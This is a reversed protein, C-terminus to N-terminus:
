GPPAASSLAVKGNACICRYDAVENMLSCQFGSVTSGQGTCIDTCNASVERCALASAGRAAFVCFLVAAAALLLPARTAFARRAAGM